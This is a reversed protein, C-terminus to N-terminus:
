RSVKGVHMQSQDLCVGVHGGAVRGGKLWYIVVSGIWWSWPVIYVRIWSRYGDRIGSHLHPLDVSCLCQPECATSEPEYHGKGGGGERSRFLYATKQSLCGWTGSVNVGHSSSRVFATM